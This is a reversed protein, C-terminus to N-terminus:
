DRDLPSSQGAPDFLLRQAYLTDLHEAVEVILGDRFRFVFVYGNDYVAGAATRGRITTEVFVRDGEAAIAEPTIELPVSADYLGVGSGMLELVAAKGEFPGALPSSRPTHWVVDDALLDAVGPDGRSVRDFYVDVRARNHEARDDEARSESM